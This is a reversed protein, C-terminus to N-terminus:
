ARTTLRHDPGLASLAAVATAIKTTSAPTGCDSSPSTCSIWSPTASTATM